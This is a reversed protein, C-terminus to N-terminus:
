KLPEDPNRTIDDIEKQILDLKVNSGWEEYCARAQKFYKLAEESDGNKNKFYFGAKECALGQEHNFGSRKASEISAKYLGIAREHHKTLYQQEAQLLCLKNTFNWDSNTAADNMASIADRVVEKYRTTHSKKKKLIDLSNLASFPSSVLSCLSIHISDSRKFGM